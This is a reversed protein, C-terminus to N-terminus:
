RRKLIERRLESTMRYLRSWERPTDRRCETSLSGSQHELLERVEVGEVAGADVGVDEDRGGRGTETTVTDTDDGM